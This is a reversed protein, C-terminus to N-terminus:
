NTNYKLRIIFLWIYFAITMFCVRNVKFGVTNTLIFDTNDYLKRIM